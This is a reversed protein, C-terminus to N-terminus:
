DSSIDSINHGRDLISERDVIVTDVVIECCEREPDNLRSVLCDVASKGMEEIPQRVTSLRVPLFRLVRNDCFGAISIDQPIRLGLNIAAHVLEAAVYDDSCFVATLEKNATLYTQLVKLASTDLVHTGRYMHVDEEVVQIYEQKVPAGLAMLAHLYGQYRDERSRTTKPARSAFGIHRHGKGLLYSTMDYAGQYNAHCVSVISIDPYTRDILVVPYRNLKLRLLEGDFGKRDAPFLIIGQLYPLESLERLIRDEMQTDEDTVRLIVGIGLTEARHNISRIIDGIYFDLVPVVLAVSRQATSGGIGSGSSRELSPIRVEFGEALFSGRRSMRYIIGAEELSKLALKGTMRSVGYTQAISGESPIPDHAKLNRTRIMAIIDNRVTEYLFLQKQDKDQSTSM